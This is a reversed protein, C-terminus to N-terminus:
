IKDGTSVNDLCADETPPIYTWRAMLKIGYNKEISFGVCKRNFARIRQRSVKIASDNDLVMIPSEFLINRGLAEKAEKEDLFVKTNKVAIEFATKSFVTTHKIREIIDEFDNLGEQPYIKRGGEMKEYMYNSLEESHRFRLKEFSTDEQLPFPEEMCIGYGHQSHCRMFPQYGIPLIVNNCIYYDNDLLGMWMKAEDARWGPIHFIVGYKTDENKETDEKTLPRWKKLDSDWKCTAFFMAVDFDSTIDLWKTEIGYHQALPEYLVTGYNEQWFRVIGLKNLFIQFEAVRMSAVLMYVKKDEDSLKDLTRYLTPQSKEFIQNEGRYYSNRQGQNIITGHPYEMMFGETKADRYLIEKFMAMHFDDIKENGPHGDNAYYSEGRYSSETVRKCEQKDMDNQSMMYKLDSYTLEYPENSLENSRKETIYNM